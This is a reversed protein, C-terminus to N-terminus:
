REFEVKGDVITVLVKTDRIEEEKSKKLDKDLIIIDALKGVEISGKIDDENTMYAGNITMTRLMEELTISEKTGLQYGQIGKRTLASYIGWFPNVHASPMDTSCAVTVGKDIYTRIPLFEEQKDKPLLKDYGDAENYIFAPQLAAIIGAEVIKPYCEQTPYYAHILQHQRKQPNAKYAEYIANVAAEVAIDGMVHIGVSWGADHAEKVWGNLKELDLRLPLEEKTKAKEEGIYPWSKLATRSTLGGDIAMKLAGMKIWENGFGTYLGYEGILRDSFDEKENISFGHWNPMLNTRIKLNGKEYVNQYAKFMAPSVGPEVISTIGYSLFDEMAHGIVREIEKGDGFQSEGFASPMFNRVLQKATRFLLGNPEGNEDRGIEGGKPDPTDKTIGAIKLAASNAVCTSFIRELVVPNNPSVPDLDHKTPMRMDKFQTEIWCGGQLWQGEEMKDVREKVMEVLKQISEVGFVILGEMMVGTEWMHVHSDNIGPMVTNGKADIKKTKEGALRCVEDNNGVAIIKNDKIAVAEEISNNKDVTNVKGNYIILDPTLDVIKM